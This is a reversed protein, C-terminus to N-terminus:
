HMEMGSMDSMNDYNMKPATPTPKHHYGPEASHDASSHGMPMMYKMVLNDYLKADVNSYYTVPVSMSPEALNDYSTQNLQLLSRRAASVWANFDSESSAKATFTMRSFGRGAINAPSGYYSGAKDAILHLKTVMGPMAYIQGGLQPVWFSNMITDSTISFEVPTNVPFQVLNVSAIGQEPYIFLWKWDMAVVEVPIPKTKHSLQKYPDLDHASQWTVVSLVLIIVIPIGWWISEYLKSNDWDPEYKVQKKSSVHNSERYKWAIFITLAFVPIVVIASLGLAFILLGREKRGVEGAPELMAINKDKLFWYTALVVGVVFLVPLIIKIKKKMM